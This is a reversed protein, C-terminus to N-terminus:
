INKESAFMVNFINKYIENVSAQDIKKKKSSYLKGLDWMM